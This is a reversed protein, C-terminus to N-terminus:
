ETREPIEGQIKDYEGFFLWERGPVKENGAAATKAKRRGATKEIGREM